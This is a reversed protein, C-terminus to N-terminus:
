LGSSAISRDQLLIERAEPYIRSPDDDVASGGLPDLGFVDQALDPRCSEEADIATMPLLNDFVIQPEGLRGDSHMAHDREIIEQPHTPRIHRRAIELPIARPTRRQDGEGHAEILKIETVFVQDAKVLVKEGAIRKEAEEYRLPDVIEAAVDNKELFIDRRIHTQTGPQKEADPVERRIKVRPQPSPKM